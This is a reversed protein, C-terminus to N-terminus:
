EDVRATATKSAARENAAPQMSPALVIEVRRNAARGEFTRNEAVPERPGRGDCRIRDAAVGHRTLYDGVKDARQQSLNTNYAESGRTDTHGEILLISNPDQETLIRAVERLKAQATPLLETEGAQFMSEGALTIVTGREDQKVGAFRTLM